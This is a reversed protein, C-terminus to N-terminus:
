PPWTATHSGQLPGLLILLRRHRGSHRAWVSQGNLRAHRPRLHWSGHGPDQPTFALQMTMLWLGTQLQGVPKTPFGNSCQEVGGGLLHLLSIVWVSYTNNNFSWKILKYYFIHKKLYLHLIHVFSSSKLNWDNFLVM